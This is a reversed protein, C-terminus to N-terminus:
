DPRWIRRRPLPMGARRPPPTPSMNMSSATPFEEIQGTTLFLQQALKVIQAFVVVGADFAKERGDLGKPVSHFALVSAAYAAENVNQNDKFFASAQHCSNM